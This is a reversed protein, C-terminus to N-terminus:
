HEAYVIWRENKGWVQLFGCLLRLLVRMPYRRRLSIDKVHERLYCGFNRIYCLECDRGTENALFLRGGAELVLFAADEYRLCSLFVAKMSIM